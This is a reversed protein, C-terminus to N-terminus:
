ASSKAIRHFQDVLYSVRFPKGRVQNVGQVPVGYTGSLLLRLQGMNLEPVVVKRYRRVIDGLNAPFPNLYNVHAHALPIGARNCDEV